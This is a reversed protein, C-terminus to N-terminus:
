TPLNQRPVQEGESWNQYWTLQDFLTRDWVDLGNHFECIETQFARRQQATEARITLVKHLMGSLALHLLRKICNRITQVKTTGWSIPNHLAVQIYRKSIVEDRKCPKVPIRVWMVSGFMLEHLYCNYMGPHRRPSTAECQTATWADQWIKLSSNLDHM